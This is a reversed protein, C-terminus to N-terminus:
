LIAEILPKWIADMLGLYAGALVVFGLTVATGQGVQRRDPWQVRRLEDVCHRLFTLVRGRQRPTPAGSIEVNERVPAFDRELEDPAAAVERELEPEEEETPPPIDVGQEAFKAQDVWSSSERLPDPTPTGGQRRRRSRKPNRAM